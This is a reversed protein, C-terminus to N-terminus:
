TPKQASIESGTENTRTFAMWCISLLILMAGVLTRLLPIEGFLLFGIIISLILEAYHWPALLSVDALQYAKVICFLILNACVGLGALGLLEFLTPTVWFIYAIPALCLSGVAGSYFLMNLMPEQVAISKNAVDLSAYLAAAMVLLYSQNQFDMQGLNLTYLVGAFGLITAIGRRPGITEKLFLKAFIVIFLPISFGIVTVMVLPVQHLGRFWLCTATVLGIGRFIHIGLHKTKLCAAGKGILAPLLVITSVLLRSFGVQYFSLHTGMAKVLVDNLICLVISVLFWAVGTWFKARRSFFMSILARRDSPSHTRSIPISPAPIDLKSL